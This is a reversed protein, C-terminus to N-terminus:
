SGVAWGEWPLISTSFLTATRISSPRPSRAAAQAIAASSLTHASHVKWAWGSSGFTTKICFMQRRRLLEFHFLSPVRMRRLARYFAVYRTRHLLGEAVVCAHSVKMAVTWRSRTGRPYRCKQTSVIRATLALSGRPWRKSWAARLPRTELIPM